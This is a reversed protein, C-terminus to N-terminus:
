LQCDNTKTNHYKRCMAMHNEAAQDRDNCGISDIANGDTDGDVIKFVMTEYLRGSGVPEPGLGHWYM